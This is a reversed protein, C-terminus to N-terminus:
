LIFHYKDVKWLAALSPVTQLESTNASSKQMENFLKTNLICDIAVDIELACTSQREFWHANPKSSAKVYRGEFVEHQAHRLGSVKEDPINSRIIIHSGDAQSNHGCDLHAQAAPM